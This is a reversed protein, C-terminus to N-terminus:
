FDDKIVSTNEKIGKEFSLVMNDVNYQWDCAVDYWFGSKHLDKPDEPKPTSNFSRIYISRAPTSPLSGYRSYEGPKFANGDDYFQVRIKGDKFQAVLRIYWSYSMYSKIGMTKIYNSTKTIYNLVIQNDTESVMVEKLNVFSTSAWNKFQTQIDKTTKNPIEITKSVYLGNTVDEFKKLDRIIEEQGFSIMAVLTFLSVM